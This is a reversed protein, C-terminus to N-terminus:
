VWSQPIASPKLDRLGDTLLPRLAVAAAPKTPMADLKREFAAIQALADKRSLKAFDPAPSIGVAAFGAAIKAANAQQFKGKITADYFNLRITTDRMAEYKPREAAPLEPSGLVRQIKNYYDRLPGAQTDTVASEGSFFRDYTPKAQDLERKLEAVPRPAEDSQYGSVANWTAVNEGKRTGKVMDRQVKSPDHGRTAAEWKKEHDVSGSYSGPASHVYAFATKLNPFMAKYLDMNRESGSYCGQVMFDEVQRAAGPFARTIKQLSEYDFYGNSDGWVGGGVSHGSLILREITREGREAEAFARCLQAAEDRADAQAGKIIGAVEKAKAGSLGIDKVYSEVGADTALDYTKMRGGVSFTLKDDGARSDTIGVVGTSAYKRLQDLEYGANDGMGLFVIDNKPAAGPAQKKAGFQLAQDLAALTEADVEGSPSLGRAKQFAAVAGQTGRGFIGDARGSLFGTAILAAQVARAADGRAGIAVTEDGRAVGALAPAGRLQESGLSVVPAGGAAAAAQDREWEPRNSGIGGIASM